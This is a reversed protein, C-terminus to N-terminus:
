VSYLSSSTGYQLYLHHHNWYEWVSSISSTEINVYQLHLHHHNHIEISFISIIISETNRYQLHLHHHNLHHHASPAKTELLTQVSKTHNPFVKGSLPLLSTTTPNYWGQSSARFHDPSRPRRSHLPITDDWSMHGYYIQHVETMSLTVPNYWGQVETWFPDPTSQDDLIHFSQIM